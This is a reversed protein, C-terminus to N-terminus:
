SGSGAAIAALEDDTLNQYQIPGGDKGTHEHEQKDRWKARQRNKLWFIASTPDPPYHKIIPTGVIQGAVVKLDLDPHSYGLARNYLSAAVKADAEDKGRKIADLFESHSSKWANITQTSVGFFRALDEDTAGLLCYNFAQEVYEPRYSTPRGAPM